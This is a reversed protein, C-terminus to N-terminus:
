ISSSRPTRSARTPAACTRRCAPTASRDSGQRAGRLHRDRQVPHAPAPRQGLRLVPQGRRGQVHARRLGDDNREDPEGFRYGFLSEDWDLDGTVAKAYPDLLLKAPNCRLGQAPDYPGHVRYGYRQGPGINPLYCHHVFGDVESCRSGPRRATARRVPVARRVRRGRFVARLQHRRRRVFGRSSLVLWAVAANSAGRRDPGGPRGSSPCCLSGAPGAPDRIMWRDGVGARAPCEQSAAWRPSSRRHRRGAGVNVGPSSPPWWSPPWYGPSRGATCISMGGSRGSARSM